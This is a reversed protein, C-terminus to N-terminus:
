DDFPHRFTTSKQNGGCSTTAFIRRFRSAASRCALEPCNACLPNESVNTGNPGMNSPKLHEIAQIR